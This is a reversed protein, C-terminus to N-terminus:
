SAEKLRTLLWDLRIQALELSKLTDPNIDNDNESDPQDKNYGLRSVTGRLRDSLFAAIAHYFHAAFAVDQGLKRTLQSRPIAWVISDEAAKVTASPLRTDILSMEGVVEGQHLQAIEEGGFAEVLVALSGNLVIYLADTPIGEYILTTGAAIDRKTGATLLWEFDRDSFEALMYLAKKM